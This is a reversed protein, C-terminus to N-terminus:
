LNLAREYKKQDRNVVFGLSNLFVMWSNIINSIYCLVMLVSNIHIIDQEIEMWNQTQNKYANELYVSVMKSIVGNLFELIRGIEVGLGFILEM